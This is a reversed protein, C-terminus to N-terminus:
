VDANEKPKELGYYEYYDDAKIIPLKSPAAYARLFSATAESCDITIRHGGEFTIEMKPM